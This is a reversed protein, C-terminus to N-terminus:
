DPVPLSLLAYKVGRTLESYRRDIDKMQAKFAALQAGSLNEGQQVKVTRPNVPVNNVLVEYHLHPGTSRGTTGVYGIIQGQKVRSGASLGKGFGNMHAYATKINSNHRIRVYNGYTGWRGMKEVTGDGAAYIPTGRPAAFDTGKHMKTYGLVPHKRMGFGSSLRAGDIPTSMLAKRISYGQPTYYDISGDATEFRYVPVDQGNVKLRAYLVDGHKVLVGDETEVQDYMVEMSDGQRIDRQFDIDWSYIRITEAVISAPIGAKLASGYLSLEIDTKHAYQQTQTPREQVEAEIDGKTNKEISVTKLPDIDIDMRAFDYDASDKQPDFRLSLKQGPKLNRLDYFEALKQAIQYVDQASVGKRNLAAALTDGSGIEVIEEKPEPKPPPEPRFVVKQMLDRNDPSAYSSAAYRNLRRNRIEYNQLAFDQEKENISELGLQRAQEALATIFQGSEATFGSLAQVTVPAAASIFFIVFGSVVPLSYRLRLTNRRTLVYRHRVPLFRGAKHLLREFDVKFSSKKGPATFVM